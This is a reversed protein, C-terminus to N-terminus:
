RNALFYILIKPLLEIKIGQLTFSNMVTIMQPFLLLISIMDFCSAEFPSTYGAPKMVQLLSASHLTVLSLM